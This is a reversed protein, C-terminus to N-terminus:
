RNYFDFRWKFRKSEGGERLIYDYIEGLLTGQEDGFQVSNEGPALAKTRKPSWYMGRSEELEKAEQCMLNIADDLSKLKIIEGTHSQQFEGDLVSVNFESEFKKILHSNEKIFECLHLREKTKNEIIFSTSSSNSVFGKRTKIPM